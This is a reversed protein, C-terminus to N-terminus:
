QRTMRESVYEFQVSVGNLSWKAYANKVRFRISLLSGRSKERPVTCRIPKPRQIGGWPGSGWQFAGWLDSGFTGNITTESYGGSLDTYFSSAATNFAKDRFLWAVEQFHKMIGANELPQNTFEIECDIAKLISISTDSWAITSDVVVTSTAPDISNIISYKVNTEYIVDGIEVNLLSDLVVSSGSHSTMTYGTYIEDVYDTFLFDKREQYINQSSAHALYLRDDNVNVIGHVVDKEWTTWSDTFTNYVLAQTCHLDGADKITFLIFKRDTEYNIGFSLTKLNTYNESILEQIKNEIPRSKVEVGVDSIAVVGQDSLCYIQNNVVVASDPAIIKTSTDLPDISWQGNQGTVRFVGDDKLVFLSDRLAIIRRIAYNKSGIYELHSIPVHEPQQIKSWMLGNIYAENNSEGDNLDWALARSATVNFVTGDITRKELLIIGPLDQYGSEYYAYISTNSSYQNIVKVLSKATDEINQAASGGTSVKFQASAVTETAKATYVVSNITITDDAVLGAGGVSLLNITINHKNQVNAYFMFGKFESIDKAQPPQENAESIGEQSANTYLSAGMLSTPTSDTHTISKATIEGATPNNEYVLQLEDNPEDTSTASEKSRYIQYFDNVTIGVPITFTLSVDRTGGSSNAVIIRQSPVGLYLNNNFDRSGWVIRYAVQTNTTMFGSAGTTVGSGDLGAPMGTSYVPGSINDLVNVGLSTTFYLNGSAQVFRMRAYDADPHSFTGDYDTWGGEYSSLSDNDSRHIVLANKYTTIRDVRADEVGINPDFFGLGRRSEGVSDKDVVINKAVSLSGDVVESLQNQNTALGKIKLLLKQSM